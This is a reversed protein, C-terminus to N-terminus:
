PRSGGVRTSQQMAFEHLPAPLAPDALAQLFADAAESANGLAQLSIGLGVLWAGNGPANTLLARYRRAADAHAGSRQEAAALLAHFEPDSDVTPAAPRMVSVAEAPANRALLIHGLVRAMAVSGPEAELGERLLSEAGAADGSELLSLARDATPPPTSEEIHFRAGASARPANVRKGTDV